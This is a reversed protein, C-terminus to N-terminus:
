KESNWAVAPARINEEDMGSPMRPISTAGFFFTLPV